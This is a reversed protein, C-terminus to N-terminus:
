EPPQEQEILHLYTTSQERLQETHERIAATLDTVADALRDDMDDELTDLGLEHTFSWLLLQWGERELRERERQSYSPRRPM